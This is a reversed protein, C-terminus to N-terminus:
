LSPWSCFFGLHLGTLLYSANSDLHWVVYFLTKFGVYMCLFGVIISVILNFLNCQNPCTCLISSFLIGLLTNYIFKPVLNLPLGLFLHHSSTLSSPLITPPSPHCSFYMVSLFPLLEQSCCPIMVNQVHWHFSHVTIACMHSCMCMNLLLEFKTGQIRCHTPPHSKAIVSFTDASPLWLEATFMASLLFSQVVSLSCSSVVSLPESFHLLTSLWVPSLCSTYSVQLWDQHLFSSPGKVLVFQPATWGNVLAGPLCDQAHYVCVPLKFSGRMNKTVTGYHQKNFKLVRTSWKM